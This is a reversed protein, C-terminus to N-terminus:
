RHPRFLKKGRIQRVRKWQHDVVRIKGDYFNVKNNEDVLGMYYTRLTYADSKILDVYKSNGLVIDHFLKLSFKAFNVASTAM